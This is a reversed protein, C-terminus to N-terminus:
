ARGMLPLALRVLRPMFTPRLLRQDYRGLRRDNESLCLEFFRRPSLSIGMSEHGKMTMNSRNSADSGKALRLRNWAKGFLARGRRWAFAPRRWAARTAQMYAVWNAFFLIHRAEEQIVPEFVDVLAPPFFGSDQAIRFLGFAFFSDFSEGYGTQMFAWEPDFPRPPPPSDVVAIGYHRVMNDLVEKHRREEFANLAIAERILPDASEDAAWQMRASAEIETDVAIQWFPLGTLRALAADDLRPWAIVAPKYPDFTDIFTRCFLRKHDESGVRITDDPATPSAPASLPHNTSRMATPRAIDM